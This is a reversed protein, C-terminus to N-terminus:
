NEEAIFSPAGIMYFLHPEDLPKSMIRLKSFMSAVQKPPRLHQMKEICDTMFAEFKVNQDAM